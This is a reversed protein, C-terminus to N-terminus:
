QGQLAHSKTTERKEEKRQGKFQPHDDKSQGLLLRVTGSHPVLELAKFGTPQLVRQHLLHELTLDSPQKGQMDTTGDGAQWKLYFRCAVM